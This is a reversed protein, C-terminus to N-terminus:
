SNEQQKNLQADAESYLNGPHTAIGYHIAIGQQELQHQIRQLAQQAQQEDTEPLLLAFEDGGIRAAVDSTRKQKELTQAIQQLRQDGAPHGHQDNIQKLNKLDILILSLPRQYRQATAQLQKLAEDFGRRNRLSTLPDTRSQELLQLLVLHLWLNHSNTSM